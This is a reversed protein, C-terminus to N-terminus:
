GGDGAAGFNHVSGTGSAEAACEGAIWEGASRGQGNEIKEFM